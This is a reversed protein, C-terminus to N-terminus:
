NLLEIVLHAHYEEFSLSSVLAVYFVLFLLGELLSHKPPRKEPSFFHSYARRLHLAKRGGQVKPPRVKTTEKPSM